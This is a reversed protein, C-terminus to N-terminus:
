QGRTLAHDITALMRTGAGIRRARDAAHGLHWSPLRAIDAAVPYFRRLLAPAGVFFSAALLADIVAGGDAKALSGGPVTAHGVLAVGALPHTGRQAVGDLQRRRRDIDGPRPPAGALAGAALDSPVSLPAPYGQVVVGSQDRWVVVLDDALATWGAELAVLALTSKGAGTGGLALLAYAGTAMAAGHLLFRNREALLCSLVLPLLLDITGADAGGIRAVTGTVQAAAGSAHQVFTASPEWWVQLGLDDVEPPRSPTTVAHRSTVVSCVAAATTPALLATAAQLAVDDALEIAVGGIEVV